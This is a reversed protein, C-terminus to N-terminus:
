TACLHPGPCPAAHLCPMGLLGPVSSCALFACGAARACLQMCSLCTWCGPACLSDRPQSGQLGRSQPSLEQPCHHQCARSVSKSGMPLTSSVEETLRLKKPNSYAVMLPPDNNVLRSHNSWGDYVAAFNVPQGPVFQQQGAASRLPKDCLGSVEARDLLDGKTLFSLKDMYKAQVPASAKERALWSM